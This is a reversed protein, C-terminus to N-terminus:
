GSADVFPSHPNELDGPRPTFDTFVEPRLDAVANELVRYDKARLDLLPETNTLTPLEAERSWARVFAAAMVYGSQVAAEADMEGDGPALRMMAVKIAKAERETVKEPDVVTVTDGGPLTVVYGNDRLGAVRAIRALEAKIRADTAAKEADIPSSGNAAAPTDTM